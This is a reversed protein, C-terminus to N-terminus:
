ITVVITCKQHELDSQICQRISYVTQNSLEIREHKERKRERERAYTPKKNLANM